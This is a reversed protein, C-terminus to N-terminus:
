LPFRGSLIYVIENRIRGVGLLARLSSRYFSGLRGTCDERLSCTSPLLHSGWVAAGYLLSSRVYTDFLLLRTARDRWGRAVLVGM